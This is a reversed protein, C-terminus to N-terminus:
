NHVCEESSFLLKCISLERNHVKEVTGPLDDLSCRHSILDQCQFIGKDMMDVTYSWENIPQSGFHSNWIGKFTLEQRLVHSHAEKSLTTNGAPNGMLVITAFSRSCWVANELASSYGTGEIIVDALKGGFSRKVVEVLEKGTAATANVGHERAFAVKDAVVDVILVNGAGAIAAWRAAMIGIPGAGFILVNAGAFTGGRRLVAHQAVCAPETMALVEMPVEPNRSEVFHWRSPVLCYEAFGGDRRSGLYDYDQCMAYHGSLCNDCKRCPILPFIAGRKGILAPDASEGVAVVTGAFEHGITMPYHQNSTGHVYIRPLDSGCLGCAGVRVLLEDGKPVPIDVTKTTFTGIKNLQAAKMTGKKM